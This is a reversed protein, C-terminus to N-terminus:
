TPSRALDDAVELANPLDNIWCKVRPLVDSGSHSMQRSVHLQGADMQRGLERLRWLAHELFARQETADFPRRVLHVEGHTPRKELRVLRRNEAKIIGNLHARRLVGNAQFQYVPEEGFYFSVSGDRRFGVVVPATGSSTFEIRDVLAVADRMLDERPSERKAM